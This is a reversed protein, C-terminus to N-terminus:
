AKRRAPPRSQSRGAAGRTREGGARRQREGGGGPKREVGAGPKRQAAGSALLGFVTPSRPLDPPAARLQAVSRMVIRQESTTLAYAILVRTDPRLNELLAALIQANRYPTEILLVTENGLASRREWSAIAAARGAPDVPLYGAFSFRQGNLGSAMLALLLSSPGILPCVEIGHQHAAAVLDAGPDAVAPCGAESVLGVDRGALLPALTRPLDEARSHENWELMEIEQLPRALPLERLFARASRANEVIFVELRAIAALTAAPLVAPADGPAGIPAPVLWLRGRAASM